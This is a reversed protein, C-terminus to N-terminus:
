LLIEVVASCMTKAATCMCMIHVQGCLAMKERLMGIDSEFQSRDFPTELLDCSVLLSDFEKRQLEVDDSLGQM